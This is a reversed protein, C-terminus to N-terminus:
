RLAWEVFVLFLPCRLRPLVVACSPLRARWTLSCSRTWCCCRWWSRLCGSLRSSGWWTTNRCTLRGFLHDIFNNRKELEPLNSMSFRAVIVPGRAPYNAIM